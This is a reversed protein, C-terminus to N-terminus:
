KLKFYDSRVAVKVDGDVFLRSNLFINSADQSSDFILNSNSIKDFVNQVKGLFFSDLPISNHCSLWLLDKKISETQIKLIQLSKIYDSFSSDPLHAFLTGNYILDGVFALRETPDIYITHGSTHGPTFHATLKWKGFEIIDKDNVFNKPAWDRQVPASIIQTPWQLSDKTAHFYNQLQEGEKLRHFKEWETRSISVKDALYNLGVHDCHSHTNLVSFNRIGLISLLEKGFSMLGLGSDIFLASDDDKLIYFAADAPERVLFLDEKLERVNYWNAISFEHQMSMILYYSIQIDRPRIDSNKMKNQSTKNKHVILRKIGVFFQVSELIFNKM